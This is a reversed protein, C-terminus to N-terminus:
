IKGSSVEYDPCPKDSEFRPFPQHLLSSNYRCEGLFDIVYTEPGIREQFTRVYQTVFWKCSECCYLTNM